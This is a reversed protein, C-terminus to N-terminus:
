KIIILEYFVASAFPGEQELNAYTHTGGVVDTVCVSGDCPEGGERIRKGNKM